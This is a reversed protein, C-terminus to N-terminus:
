PLMAMPISRLYRTTNRSLSFAVAVVDSPTLRYLPRRKGELQLNGVDDAQGAKAVAVRSSEAGAGTSRSSSSQVTGLNELKKGGQTFASVSIQLVLLGTAAVRTRHIRKTM